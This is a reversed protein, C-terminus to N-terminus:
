TEWQQKERNPSEDWHSYLFTQNNQPENQNEKVKKVM